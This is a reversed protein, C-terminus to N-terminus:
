PPMCEKNLPLTLGGVQQSLLHLYTTLHHACALDPKVLLHPPLGLVISNLEALANVHDYQPSLPLKPVIDVRHAIRESRPVAQNYASVFSPTGTRPSAYTWVEPNKFSTNSAVDLALLTALSAGLSHGCITLNRVTQSTPLAKIADVLCTSPPDPTMRLSRYLATFGDDTQGAGALFPCNVVRFEADHIWEWIGDTGRIAVVVDNNPAQLILGFSVIKLARDPNLDTALDNGYFSSIVTYNINATGYAINVVRGAANTLDDPMIDEAMKVLLGFQIARTFDM